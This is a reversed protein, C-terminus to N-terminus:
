RSTEAPLAHEALADENLSIGLGPAESLEVWGGFAEPEGDFLETFLTYGTRHVGTPFVEILPSNMHAIILHANHAQQSHPIVPVNFASALAWVKRAETIGGM